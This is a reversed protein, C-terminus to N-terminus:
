DFLRRVVSDVRYIRKAGLEKLALYMELQNRETVAIVFATTDAEKKYDSLENVPVGLINDEENKKTVAFSHIECGRDQLSKALRQGVMGAGYIVKKLADAFGVAYSDENEFSPVDIRIDEFHKATKKFFDYADDSIANVADYVEQEFAGKVIREEAIDKKLEEEIRLLISYQFQSAVRKYHDLYDRYKTAYFFPALSHMREDSSFANKYNEEVWGYEDFVCFIKKNNYMSSNENDRRYHLVPTDVFCVRKANLWVQESFSIDQYSAGPTEHFRIRYNKLFEHNYICSWISDAVSIIKPEDTVDLLRNLLFGGVRNEYTDVGNRYGYLNAKVVDANMEEAKNYLAELMNPEAFDDSELIAIYKGAANDLAVNMTHGYGTNEKHFVKVRADRNKYEDLIADSGDTSGDNVCVIEIDTLTQNLLSDLCEKLFKEVNYIPVLVSVKVM